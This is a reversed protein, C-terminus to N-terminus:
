VSLQQRLRAGVPRNKSGRQIAALVESLPIHLIHAIEDQSVREQRLRWVAVIKETYNLKMWVREKVVLNVAWEDVMDLDLDQSNPRREGSM